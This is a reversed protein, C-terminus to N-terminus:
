QTFMSLAQWWLYDLPILIAWTILTLPVTIRLLGMIPERALQM